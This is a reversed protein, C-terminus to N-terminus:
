KRGAKVQRACDRLAAFLSPQGHSEAVTVIPAAFWDYVKIHWANRGRAAPWAATRHTIDLDYRAFKRLLALLTV